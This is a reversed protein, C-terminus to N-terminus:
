SVTCVGSSFMLMANNSILPNAEIQKNSYIIIAALCKKFRTDIHEATTM